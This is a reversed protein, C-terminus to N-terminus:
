KKYNYRQTLILYNIYKLLPFHIVSIFVNLSIGKSISSAFYFHSLVSRMSFLVQFDFLPNDSTKKEILADTTLPLIKNLIM